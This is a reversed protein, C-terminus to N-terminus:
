ALALGEPSWLPSAQVMLEVPDDVAPRIMENISAKVEKADLGVLQVTREWGTTLVAGGDGLDVCTVYPAPRFPVVGNTLGLLESAANWGATKGMPIAFQCSQTVIHTEDARAAATDGAVFVHPATRMRLHDDVELRGLEDRPGPLQATLPNAAMGVTWVVTAASIRTGSGLRANTGDYSRLTDGLHVEVGAESLQQFIADRPGPGLSPALEQQQELLVVRPEGGSGARALQRLRSLLETAVELGTFGSGVVVATWRAAADHRSLDELHAELRLAGGISDVDHVQGGGAVPVPRIQSGSALVLRDWALTRRQAHEQTIEITKSALDVGVVLGRVQHVGVPGFLGGLPVRHRDPSSQYLRPRIVMESHPSVVTVEVQDDAENESIVRRAALAAWVGAFGAGVVVIRSM